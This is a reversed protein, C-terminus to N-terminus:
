LRPELLPMRQGPILLYSIGQALGLALRPVELVLAVLGSLPLIEMFHPQIPQGQEVPLAEVGYAQLREGLIPEQQLPQVEV